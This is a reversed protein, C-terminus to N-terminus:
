ARNWLSVLIAASLLWCVVAVLLSVALKYRDVMLYLVLLYVFYPILSWMGFRITQRLEVLGRQTGVLYHAILAFTPFLPVLGAMYANKTRALLQIVVVIAAGALAKIFLDM